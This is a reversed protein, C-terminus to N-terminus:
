FSSDEAKVEYAVNFQAIIFFIYFVPLLPQYNKKM